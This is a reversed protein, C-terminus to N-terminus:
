SSSITQASSQLILAASSAILALSAHGFTVPSLAIRKMQHGQHPVGIVKLRKGAPSPELAM